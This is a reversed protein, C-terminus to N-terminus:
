SDGDGVIRPQWGPGPQEGGAPGPPEGAAPTAQQYDALGRATMYFRRNPGRGRAKDDKGRIEATGDAELKKLMRYAVGRNTGLAADAERSSIGQPAALLGLLRMLLDGPPQSSVGPVAAGAAEGDGKSGPGDQLDTGTTGALRARGAAIKDRIGATPSPAATLPAQGTIEDWLDQLEALAPELVRRPKRHKGLLAVIRRISRQHEGFYFTRGRQLDGSYPLSAIGFVGANGGGYEGMDPLRAERGAVHTLERARTFKGWIAIDTHAQIDSGGVSNRDGRQVAYIVTVGESRLTSCIEKFLRRDEATKLTKDLEDFKAVYLPEEPSPRHVKTMRGSSPRLEIVGQLFELIKASRDHEGPGLACAAALDAWWGDELAKSM